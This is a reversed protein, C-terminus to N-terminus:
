KESKRGWLDGEWEGTQINREGDPGGRKAPAAMAEEVQGCRTVALRSPDGFLFGYFAPPRHVLRVGGYRERHTHAATDRSSQGADAEASSMWTEARRAVSQAVILDLSEGGM